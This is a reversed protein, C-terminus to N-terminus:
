LQQITSQKLVNAVGKFRIWYTGFNSVGALVVVTTLAFFVIKWGFGALLGIILQGISAGLSGCGEIIGVVTAM